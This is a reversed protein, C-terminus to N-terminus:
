FAIRYAAGIVRGLSPFGYVSEYDDNTLNRAYLTAKHRFQMASFDYGLSCDINTYGGAEGTGAKNVAEFNDVYYVGVTGKLGAYTYTVIGNFTSDPIRNDLTDDNNRNYSYSLQYTLADLVGALAVEAGYEHWDKSGYLNVIDTPDDPNTWQAAVYPADRVDLFYLSLRPKFWPAPAADFGAEAGLRTSASLSTGDVTEVEPANQTSARARTYLAFSPAAQWRAGIAAAAVPEMAEDEILVKQSVVQEYGKDIWTKDVRVGGDLSLRGRHWEDQVFAGATREKKEWGTYFYEGTPTHWWIGEVGARLTHEGLRHAHDLRLDSFNEEQVELTYADPNSWSRQQLEVRLDSRAYSLSTVGQGWDYSAKASFEGIKIPDYEWKADSVGPTTSRQLEKSGRTVFGQLDLSWADYFLGGKAYLTTKEFGTTEDPEGDSRDYDVLLNLYGYEGIGGAMASVHERGFSEVQVAALGELPAGPNRTEIVLYGADDGGLLGGTGNPLPGLNLTASDRVVRIREIAEVPLVTLIRSTVAAPIYVGDIIIGLARNGRVKVFAPAKRGQRQIFVSSAYQLVDYIDSPNLAEITDRTIVEELDAASRPLSTPRATEIGESAVTIPTEHVTIADLAAENGAHLAAASATLGILLHLPNRSM